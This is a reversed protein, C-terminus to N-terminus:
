SEGQPTARRSGKYSRELREPRVERLKVYDTLRFMWKRGTAAGQPAEAQGTAMTEWQRIFKEALAQHRRLPLALHGLTGPTDM